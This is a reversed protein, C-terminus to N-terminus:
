LTTRLDCKGIVTLIPSFDAGIDLGLILSIVAAKGHKVQKVQHAARGTDIQDRPQTQARLEVVRRGFAFDPLGSARTHFACAARRWLLREVIRFRLPGLDLDVNTRRVFARPRAFM